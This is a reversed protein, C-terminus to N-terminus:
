KCNKIHKNFKLDILEVADLPDTFPNAVGGELTLTSWMYRNIKTHPPAIQDKWSFLGARTFREIFLEYLPILVPRFIKERRQDSNLDKGTNMLIAININFHVLEGLYIEPVDLRLAVLPYKDYMKAGDKSMEVLRLNIEKRHGSMFYVKRVDPHDPLSYENMSDVVKSIDDEIFKSV